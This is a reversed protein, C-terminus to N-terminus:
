QSVKVNVVSVKDFNISFFKGDVDTFTVVGKSRQLKNLVTIADSSEFMFYEDVKLSDIYGSIHICYRKDNM